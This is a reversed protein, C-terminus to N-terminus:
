EREVGPICGISLSVVEAQLAERIQDVIPVRVSEPIYAYFLLTDIHAALAARHAIVRDRDGAQCISM